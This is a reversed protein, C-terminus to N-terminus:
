PYHRTPCVHLTWGVWCVIRWAWLVASKTGRQVAVPIRQPLIDTHTHQILSHSSLYMEMQRITAYHHEVGHERRKVHEEETPQLCSQRNGPSVCARQCWPADGDTTCVCTCYRTSSMICM